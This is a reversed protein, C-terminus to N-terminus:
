YAFLITDGRERGIAHHALNHVTCRAGCPLYLGQPTKTDFTSKVGQYISLSRFISQLNPGATIPATFEIRTVATRHTNWPSVLNSWNIAGGASGAQGMPM